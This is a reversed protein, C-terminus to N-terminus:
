QAASIIECAENNLNFASMPTGDNLFFQFLVGKEFGFKQVKGPLGNACYALGQQNVILGIFEENTIEEGLEKEAFALAEKLDYYYNVAFKGNEDSANASTLGYNKVAAKSEEYSFATNTLDILVKKEDAIVSTSTLAMLVVTTALAKKFM